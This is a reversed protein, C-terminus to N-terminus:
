TIFLTCSLRSSMAYSTLDVYLVRTYIGFLEVITLLSCTKLHFKYKVIWRVLEHYTATVILQNLYLFEKKLCDITYRDFKIQLRVRCTILCSTSFKFLFNLISSCNIADMNFDGQLRRSM